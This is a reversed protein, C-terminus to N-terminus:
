DVEGPPPGPSRRVDGEAMPQEPAAGEAAAQDDGGAALPCVSSASLACRLLLAVPQGALDVVEDGVREGDGHQLEAARAQREFRTVCLLRHRRQGVGLRVPRAAMASIWRETPKSPWPPASGGVGLADSM